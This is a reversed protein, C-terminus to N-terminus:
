EGWLEPSKSYLKKIRQNPDETTGKGNIFATDNGIATGVKAMFRVFNPNLGLGTQNLYSSLEPTGYKQMVRGINMKTNALNQGGLEKDALVQQYWEARLQKVAQENASNTDKLESNYAQFMKTAQEQTLGAEKFFTNFGQAQEPALESGDDNLLVYQEPIVQQTQEAQQPQEQMGEQLPEQNVDYANTFANEGNDAQTNETPSTQMGENISGTNNAPTNNVPASTSTNAPATAPATPATDSM